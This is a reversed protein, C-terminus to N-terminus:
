IQKAIAVTGYARTQCPTQPRIWAYVKYVLLCVTRRPDATAAWIPGTGMEADAFMTRFKIIEFLEGTKGVRM